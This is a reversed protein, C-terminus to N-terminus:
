PWAFAPATRCNVPPNGATWVWTLHDDAVWGSGGLGNALALNTWGDKHNGIIKAQTGRGMFVADAKIAEFTGTVGTPHQGPGDWIDVDDKAIAAM